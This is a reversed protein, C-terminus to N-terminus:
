GKKRVEIKKERTDKGKKREERWGKEGGDKEGIKGWIEANKRGKEDLRERWVKKGENERM